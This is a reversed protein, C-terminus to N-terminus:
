HDMNTNLFTLVKHYLDTNSKPDSVWHGQNMYYTEFKKNHKTLQKELAYANEIPTIRNNKGHIILLNANTRQVHYAPSISKIFQNSNQEGFMYDFYFDKIERKHKYTSSKKWNLDLDYMGNMPAACQYLDPAAITAQIAMYAGFGFGMICIKNPDALGEKIAWHTADIIDNQINQGANTKAANIFKEGQGFSGRPNVQLVLYGENALFQASAHWRWNWFSRFPQDSTFVVMPRNKLPQHKASTTLVHLPLSDRSTIKHVAVSAMEAPNIEPKQSSLFNISETARNIEYYTSPQSGGFVTLITSQDKAYKELHLDQGEYTARLKKHFAVEAKVSDDQLYFYKPMFIRYSVGIVENNAGFIGGTVDYDFDRFVLEIQNTNMDYEFLGNTSLGSKDANSIFYYKSNDLNFGISYQFAEKLDHSLWKGQPSKVLMYQNFSKTKGSNLIDTQFVVALQHDNNIILDTFTSLKKGVKKPKKGYSTTKLTNINMKKLFKEDSKDRSLVLIHNEDNPLISKFTYNQGIHKQNSGDYNIAIMGFKLDMYELWKHRTYVVFIFRKNNVWRISGVKFEDGIDMSFLGQNNVRNRTAIKTKGHENYSYAIIKKDPSIRPTMFSADQFYPNVSQKKAGVDMSIFAVLSIFLLKM